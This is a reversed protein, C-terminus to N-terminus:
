CPPRFSQFLTNKFCIEGVGLSHAYGGIQVVYDEFSDQGDFSWKMKSFLVENQDPVYRDEEEIGLPELRDLMSFKGEKSGLDAIPPDSQAPNPPPAPLNQPNQGSSRRSGGNQVRREYEAGSRGNGREAPPGGNVNYVNQLNVLAWLTPDLVGGGTQQVGPAPPIANEGTGASAGAPQLNPNNEDGPM